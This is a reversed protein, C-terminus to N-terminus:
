EGGLMVVSFGIGGAVVLAGGVVWGVVAVASQLEGTERAAKRLDEREQPDLDASRLATEATQFTQWALGAAVSGVVVGVVGVGVGVGSAISLVPLPTSPVRFLEDVAGDILGLLGEPTQGRSERVVQSLVKLTARETRSLSLVWTDGVRGVQGTVVQPADLAGAIEAACSIDSACGTVQRTADMDIAAQVDKGAVVDFGPYRRASALVREEIVGVVEKDAGAGAKLPSVFVRVPGDVVAAASSVAAAAAVDAHAAVSGFCAACVVVFWGPAGCLLARHLSSSSLSLSM